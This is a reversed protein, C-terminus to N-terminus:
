PINNALHTWVCEYVAQMESAHPPAKKDTFAHLPCDRGPTLQIILGDHHAVCQAARQRLRQDFAALCVILWSMGESCDIQPTIEDKETSNSQRTCTSRGSLRLLEVTDPQWTSVAIEHPKMGAPVVRISGRCFAEPSQLSAMVLPLVLRSLQMHHLMNCTGLVYVATVYCSKYCSKFRM